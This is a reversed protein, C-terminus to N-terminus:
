LKAVREAAQEMERLQRAVAEEKTTITPYQKTAPSQEVDKWTSPDDNFRHGNFWTAPHPTFQPNQGQRVVAYKATKDLVLEFGFQKIANRIAVLAKPKSVKKPYADYITEAQDVDPAPKEVMKKQNDRHRAAREAGSARVRIREYKEWNLIKWGWDRHKDLREIRRGEYDADRSAPDPSELRNICDNLINLPVNLRRSLAQRTMDVIGTRFDCVKLLDEFIHRLTYDEAISSDLIQTFVRAYLQSM